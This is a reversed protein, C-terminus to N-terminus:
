AAGEGMPSRRWRLFGPLQLLHMFGESDFNAPILMVRVFGIENAFLVEGLGTQLVIWLADQYTGEKEQPYDPIAM